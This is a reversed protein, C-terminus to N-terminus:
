LCFFIKCVPGARRLNVLEQLAGNINEQGDDKDEDAEHEDACLNRLVCLRVRVPDHLHAVPQRHRFAGGHRDRSYQFLDLELVEPLRLIGHSCQFPHLRDSELSWSAVVDVVDDAHVPAVTSSVRLGCRDVRGRPM